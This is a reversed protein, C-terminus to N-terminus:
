GHLPHGARGDRRPRPGAPDPGLHRPPGAPGARHDARRPDRGAPQRGPGARDVPAAEARRLAQAFRRRASTPWGWEAMLARWDAPDPYFSAYLECRRGVKMRDPLQSEQLQIGVSSACGARDARPDLGLVRVTGSDPRRLGEICEVTTTKGAGNPGSSASSRGPRSPSALRRRGRGPRRLAQTPQTVEIVTMGVVSPIPRRRWFPDARRGPTYSAGGRDPAQAGIRRAPGRDALSPAMVPYRSAGSRPRANASSAAAPKTTAM